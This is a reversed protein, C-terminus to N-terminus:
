PRTEIAIMYDLTIDANRILLAMGSAPTLATPSSTDASIDTRPQGGLVSAVTIRQASVSEDIQLRWAGLPLNGSYSTRVLSPYSGGEAKAVSVDGMGGGADFFQVYHYNAGGANFGFSLALSHPTGSFVANVMGGTVIVLEGNPVAITAYSTAPSMSSARLGDQAITMNSVGDWEARMTAFSDFFAIRQKAILPQPDCADGVGDNDGDDSNDAVHPCRDCADDIGDGDEDHNITTCNAADPMGVVDDLAAADVNSGGAGFGWRGCGVTVLLACARLRGVGSM